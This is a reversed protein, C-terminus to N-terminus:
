FCNAPWHIIGCTCPLFQIPVRQITWVIKPVKAWVDRVYISGFRDYLDIVGEWIICPTLRPCIKSIIGIIDLTNKNWQAIALRDIAGGTKAGLVLCVVGVHRISCTTWIEIGTRLARYVRWDLIYQSNELLMGQVQRRDLLARSRGM